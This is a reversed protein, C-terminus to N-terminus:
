PQVEGFPVTHGDSVRRLVAGVPGAVPLRGDPGFAIWGAPVEAADGSWAPAAVLRRGRADDPMAREGSGDLRISATARGDADREFVVLHRGDGDRALVAQGASRVITSVAGDKMAVSRVPCPLGRCAARVLLRDRTLGVLDGLSPDSVAGGAGTRPDIWRVRCAVEGCSQVAMLSGDDSWSLETLWTPGFREDPEIPGLIRELAGRGDLPRRWVGLDARTARDVRFEILATGDPTITARRVVADSRGVSWACGAAVDILSLRSTTGDDTGVLVTGAFPGSAFSEPDLDLGRVRATGSGGVTLRQGSRVGDVITADIRYWAGSPVQGIGPVGACRPPSWSEPRVGATTSAIVLIAGMAAIGPGARRFWRSEVM